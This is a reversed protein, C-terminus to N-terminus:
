FTLSCLWILIGALVTPVFIIVLWGLLLMGNSYKQVHSLQPDEM